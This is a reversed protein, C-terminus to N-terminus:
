CVTPHDNGAPAAAAEAPRTRRVAGSEFVSGALVRAKSAAGEYGVKFFEDARDYQTGTFGKLDGAVVIDALALSRRENDMIMITISRGAVGFFSKVDKQTIPPTDLAVAIVIDAGMKKVVDVPLNNLVAGDVLMKDGVKWPAFIAPLSMTSRLADFLPGQDFVMQKGSILESAVCRFPIPLEDFSQLQEYPATFRSIVKGVGQGPSLGPRVQLGHKVGLEVITPFARSDEKRRFSLDSYAPSLRLADQWDIQKVFEKMEPARHGTAYLGAVLGGMSTGAIYDVPIRHEEFWQLVGVHSLGLAAGGALAVGIKPRKAPTPGAQGFAPLSILLIVTALSVARRCAGTRIAGEFLAGGYIDPEPAEELGDSEPTTPEVTKAKM